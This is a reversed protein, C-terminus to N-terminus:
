APIRRLRTYALLWELLLLGTAWLLLSHYRDSWDLQVDAVFESKELADIRAYIDALAKEDQARFFRGGTMQAMDQLLKEDVRTEVTIRRKGFIPDDQIQTFRGERGVGITYVKVGLAAAMEAATRPDVEGRNNVGDTLLIVVRSEGTGSKIRSVSTALASGIATGDEILGIDVEGLVKRVMAHDLTLPARTFAKAAFVVLGVRDTGRGAIFDDVVAKAVELRNPSFDQVGMSSSLDLAVLIDVGHTTVPDGSVGLQPRALAAVLLTLVVLRLLIPLSRLRVMRGRSLGAAVMSPLMAHRVPPRRRLLVLVTALLAPILFLLLWPDALRM